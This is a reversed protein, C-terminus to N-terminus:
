GNIHANFDGIIIQKKNNNIGNMIIQSIGEFCQNIKDQPDTSVPMYVAHLQTDGIEIGVSRGQEILDMQHNLTGYRIGNKVYFGVGRSGRIAREFNQGM